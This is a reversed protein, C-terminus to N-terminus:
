PAGLVDGLAPVEVDHEQSRPTRDNSGAIRLMSSTDAIGIIWRSDWRGIM